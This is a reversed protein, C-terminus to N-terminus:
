SKTMWPGNIVAFKLGFELYRLFFFNGYITCKRISVIANGAGIFGIKISRYTSPCPISGRLLTLSLCLTDEVSKLEQVKDKLEVSGRFKTNLRSFVKVADMRSNQCNEDVGMIFFTVFIFKGAPSLFEVYRYGM